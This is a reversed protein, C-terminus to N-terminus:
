HGSPEDTEQNRYQPEIQELHYEFLTRMIEGAQAADRRIEFILREDAQAREIREVCALLAHFATEISEALNALSEGTLILTNRKLASTPLPHCGIILDPPDDAWCGETQPAIMRLHDAMAGTLEIAHHGLCETCYDHHRYLIPPRAGTPQTGAKKPNFRLVIATM